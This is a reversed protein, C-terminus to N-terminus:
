KLQRSEATIQVPMELINEYIAPPFSKSHKLAMDTRGHCGRALAKQIV